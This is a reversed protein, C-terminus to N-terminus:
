VLEQTYFVGSNVHVLIRDARVRRLELSWLNFFILGQTIHLHRPIQRVSPTIKRGEVRVRSLHVKPTGSVSVRIRVEHMGLGLM